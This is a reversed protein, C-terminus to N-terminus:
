QDAPIGHNVRFAYGAHRRSRSQDASSLGASQSSGSFGIVGSVCLKISYNRNLDRHVSVSGPNTPGGRGGAPVPIIVRSESSRRARQKIKRENLLFLNSRIHADLQWAATSSSEDLSLSHLLVVLFTFAVCIDYETETEFSGVSPFTHHCSSLVSVCRSASFSVRRQGIEFTPNM